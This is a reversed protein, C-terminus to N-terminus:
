LEASGKGPSKSSGLFPINWVEANKTADNNDPIDKIKNALIM